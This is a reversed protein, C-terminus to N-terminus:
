SVVTVGINSAEWYRGVKIMRTVPRYIHPRPVSASYLCGKCQEVMVLSLTVYHAGPIM